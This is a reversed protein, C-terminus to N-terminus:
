TLWAVGVGLGLGNFYLWFQFRRKYLLGGCNVFTPLVVWFNRWGYPWCLKLMVGLDLWALIKLQCVFDNNLLKWVVNTLWNGISTILFRLDMLCLMFLRLPHLIWCFWCIQFSFTNDLIQKEIQYSVLWTKPRGWGLFAAM